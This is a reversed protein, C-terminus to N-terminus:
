VEGPLKPVRHSLWRFAEDIDDFLRATIGLEAYLKAFRAVNLQGITKHPVVVAWYKWGCNRTRPFWEGIAWAEDEDSLPGNNRDDSLWRDCDHMVLADTGATLAERFPQNYCAAHMEHHIM